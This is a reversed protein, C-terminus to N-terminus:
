RNVAQYLTAIGGSLRRARVEIFGADRMLSMLEEGEPFDDVSRPLYRYASPRGTLLGGLRPLIHSFYLRYPHRILGRPTSLELVAASGGPRLIRRIEALAAPVDFFNRIGFAITLGDFSGSRFPLAHADAAVPRKVGKAAARILMELTFDAATVRHGHASLELALDGTGAALDLVAGPSPLLERVALRRWGVDRSLSLVRNARDYRPALSAFMSRIHSPDRDVKTV